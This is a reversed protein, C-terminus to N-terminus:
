TSKYDQTPTLLLHIYRDVIPFVTLFYIFYAYNM